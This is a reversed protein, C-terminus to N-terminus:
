AQSVAITNQGMGLDLRGVLDQVETGCVVWGLLLELATIM